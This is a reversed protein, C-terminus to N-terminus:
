RMLRVHCHLTRYPHASARGAAVINRAARELRYAPGDRDTRTLLSPRQISWGAAVTNRAAREARHAPGDRNVRALRSLRQISRGTDQCIPHGENSRFPYRM